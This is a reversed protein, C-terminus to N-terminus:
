RIPKSTSAADEPGAPLAQLSPVPSFVVWALALLLGLAGTLLTARLGIVGALAGGLLAGLPIAGFTFFRYSANMRGLMADPTVTQRLSVVLVNSVAVGAGWAFFVTMLATATVWRSGAPLAILLPFVCAVVM